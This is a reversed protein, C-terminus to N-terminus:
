EYDHSPVIFPRCGQRVLEKLQAQLKDKEKNLREVDAETKATKQGCMELLGINADKESIAALIAEQRFLNFVIIVVSSFCNYLSV